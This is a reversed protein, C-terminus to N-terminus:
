LIILYRCPNFEELMIFLSKIPCPFNMSADSAVDWSHINKINQELTM